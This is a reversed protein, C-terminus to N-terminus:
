SRTTPIPPTPTPTAGHVANGGQPLADIWNATATAQSHFRTGDSAVCGELGCSRAVACGRNGSEVFGADVLAPRGDFSKGVGRLELAPPVGSPTGEPSGAARAAITM